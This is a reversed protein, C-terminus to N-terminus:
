VVMLVWQMILNLLGHQNRQDWDNFNDRLTKLDNTVSSVLVDAVYKDILSQSKIYPLKSVQAKLEKNAKLYYLKRRLAKSDIIM